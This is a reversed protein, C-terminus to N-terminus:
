TLKNLKLFVEDVSTFTEETYDVKEINGKCLRTMKTSFEHNYPTKDSIMVVHTGVSWALWSLGSSIGIFFDAYYLDVMRQKLEVDGTWNIVNQLSTPERSIVVVKYDKENLYDVIKQWGHIGEKWMKIENSGYESICVYKGGLRRKKNKLPTFLDPVIETDDLGLTRSAIQQLSFESSNVPCYMENDKNNAGIYYQAYVNKIETNPKVFIINPYVDIFLDNRFTSCIVQCNHKKRFEEIYPIWALNDGLAHGDIKIFATKNTLNFDNTYILKEDSNFINIRWNTFWQRYGFVYTNSYFKQTNVIEQKDKDIFVVYYQNITDENIIVSPSNGALPLTCVYSIKIEM